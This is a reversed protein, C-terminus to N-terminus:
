KGPHPVLWITTSAKADAGEGAWAEAKASYSRFVGPHFDNQIRVLNAHTLEYTEENLKSM